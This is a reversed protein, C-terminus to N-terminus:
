RATEAPVRILLAKPAVAIRTTTGPKILDGDYQRPM